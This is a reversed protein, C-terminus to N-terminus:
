SAAQSPCLGQSLLMGASFGPGLEHILKKATLSYPYNWGCAQRPALSSVSFPRSVCRHGPLVEGRM